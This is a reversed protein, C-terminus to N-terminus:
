STFVKHPQWLGEATSFTALAVFSGDTSYVRHLGTTSTAPITNTAIQRGNRLMQVATPHVVIAPLQLVAIDMAQVIDPWTGAKFSEEVEEISVAQNISFAGVRTRELKTIHGGVDLIHGLDHALSRVYFGKGCEIEISLNAGAWSTINAQYLEVERGDREIHVGSRALHYLRKGDKKIASYMPPTQQFKGRFHSIANFIDGETIGTADKCDVIEGESDYSDTEIGLKIVALYQKRSGLLYEMMRTAQGICIPIVGTALPDLTGGHGVRKQNCARKIRRVVDMSTLGSPKTVNIIGDIRSIM